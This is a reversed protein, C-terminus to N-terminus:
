GVQELLAALREAAPGAGVVSLTLRRLAPDLPTGAHEFAIALHTGPLADEVRDAWEIAAVGGAHLWELGGDALLARERGEMWADFHYLALRGSYTQLLAYTPSTVPERVDLGRALGQVFCTKGSGLDGRLALVTDPPVARGLREGLERTEEPSRSLITRSREPAM